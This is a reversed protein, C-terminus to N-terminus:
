IFKLINKLKKNNNFFTQWQGPKYLEFYKDSFKIKKSILLEQIYDMTKTKEDMFEDYGHVSIIKIGKHWLLSLDLKAKIMNLGGLVLLSNNNALFPLKAVLNDSGSCDFVYDYGGQLAKNFFNKKLDTNLIRSSKIFIDENFIINYINEKRLIQYHFYSNTCITINRKNVKKHILIKYLGLGIFGAGVILIKSNLKIPEVVKYFSFSTSLPEVLCAKLYNLKRKKKILRSESVVFYSSFGGYKNNNLFKEDRVMADLLVMDNKKFKKVNDGTEIIKGVVEHGLYMKSNKHKDSFLFISSFLSFNFSLLKKDTGCLSCAYTQILVKNKNYNRSPNFDDFVIKQKIPSLFNVLIKKFLKHYLYLFINLPSKLNWELITNKFNV